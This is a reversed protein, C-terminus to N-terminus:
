HSIIRYSQASLFFSSKGPLISMNSWVVGVGVLDGVFNGGGSGGNRDGYALIVYPAQSGALKLNGTVISNIQAQTVPNGSSNSHLSAYRAGARVAAVASCYNYLTLSMQMLGVLLVLFIPLVLAMEVLSSGQEDRLSRMHRRKMM